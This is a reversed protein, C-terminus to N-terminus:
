IVLGDGEPEVPTSPVSPSNSEIDEKVAEVDEQSNVFLVTTGNSVFVMVEVGPINQNNKVNFELIIDQENNQLTFIAGELTSSGTITKEDTVYTYNGSTPDVNLSGSSLDSTTVFYKTGQSFYAKILDEKVDPDDSFGFYYLDAAAQSYYARVSANGEVAMPLYEYGYEDVVKEGFIINYDEGGCTLEETNSFYTNVNSVSMTFEDTKIDAEAYCNSDYGYLSSKSIWISNMDYFGYQKRIGTEPNATFLQQGQLLPALVSLTISTSVSEKPELDFELDYVDDSWPGSTVVSCNNSYDVWKYERYSHDFVTHGAIISADLDFERSTEKDGYILSYDIDPRSPYALSSNHEQCQALDYEFLEQDYAIMKEYEAVAADSRGLYSTGIIFDDRDIAGAQTFISKVNVKEIEGTYLEFEGDGDLAASLRAFDALEEDSPQAITLNKADMDAILAAASSLYTGATALRTENNLKFFSSQQLASLPDVEITIYEYSVGGIEKEKPKIYEIDGYTYSSFLELATAAFLANARIIKADESNLTFDDYSVVKSSNSFVEGLVDSADKLELAMTHMAETGGATTTAEALKILAGSNDVTFADLLPLGNETTFLAGIDSNIVEAISAFALLAREDKNVTTAPISTQISYITDSLSSTSPDMGSLSSLAAAVNESSGEVAAVAAAADDIEKKIAQAQTLLADIKEREETLDQIYGEIKESETEAVLKAANAASENRDVLATNADSYANDLTTKTTEFSQLIDSSTMLSNESSNVLDALEQRDYESSISSMEGVLDHMSSEIAEADAYSDQATAKTTNIDAIITEIAVIIRKVVLADRLEKAAIDAQVKVAIRAESSVSSNADEALDNKLEQAAAHASRATTANIDNYIEALKETANADADAQIVYADILRKDTEVILQEQAAEATKELDELSANNDATKVAELTTNVDSSVQKEVETNVNLIAKNLINEENDEKLNDISANQINSEARTSESLAVQATIKATASASVRAVDNDAYVKKAVEKISEEITSENLDVRASAFKTTVQSFVSSMTNKISNNESDAAAVASSITHVLVQLRTQQAMVAQAKAANQPNKIEKFPDFSTLNVDSLGLATKVSNEAEEPNSGSEVLAQVASTLPSVVTAGVPAKLTGTFDSNTSSDTGGFLVLPGAPSGAPFSFNGDPNSTKTNPEGNDLIGNKNVDIFVTSDMLIGDFATGQLEPSLQGETQTDGSGGGGCATLSLVAAISFSVISVKIM